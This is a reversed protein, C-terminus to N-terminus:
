VDVNKMTDFLKFYERNKSYFFSKNFVLTFLM